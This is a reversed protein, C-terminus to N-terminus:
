YNYTISATVKAYLIKEYRRKLSRLTCKTYYLHSFDYIETKHNDIICREIIKINSKLVTSVTHYKIKLKIKKYLTKTLCNTTRRNGM